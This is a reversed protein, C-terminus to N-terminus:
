HVTNEPHSRLLNDNDERHNQVLTRLAKRLRYLEKAAEIRDLANLIFGSFSVAYMSSGAKRALTWTTLVGDTTQRCWVFDKGQIQNDFRRPTTM